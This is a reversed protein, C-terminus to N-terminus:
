FPDVPLNEVDSVMVDDETIEDPPPFEEAAPLSAGMIYPLAKTLYALIEAGYKKTLPVDIVTDGVEIKYGEEKSLTMKCNDYEMPLELAKEREAKDTIGDILEMKKNDIWNKQKPSLTTNGSYQEDKDYMSKFATTEFDNLKGSELLTELIRKYKIEM